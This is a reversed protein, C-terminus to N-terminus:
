PIVCCAAAFDQPLEQFNEVQVTSIVKYARVPCLPHTM